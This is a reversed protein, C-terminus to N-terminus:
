IAANDSHHGLSRTLKGFVSKLKSEGIFLNHSPRLVLGDVSDQKDDYIVEAKYEM